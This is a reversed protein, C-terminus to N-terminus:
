DIKICDGLFCKSEEIYNELKKNVSSYDIPTSMIKELQSTTKVFRDSLGLIALLSEIRSNQRFPNSSKQKELVCFNKKFIISFCVAHFSDTLVFESNYIASIFDKPGMSINEKKSIKVAYETNPIILNFLDFKNEALKIAKRNFKTDGLFYTVFYKKNYSRNNQLKKWVDPSILFTPDCVVSVKKRTIRELEAKCTSERLSIGKFDKLYEYIYEEAYKPIYNIGFSAAYSFKNKSKVFNLFYIGNLNIPNWIQDSGCIFLDFNDNLKKFDNENKVPETLTISEFLFSNFLAEREKKEKLYTTEMLKDYRKYEDHFCCKIKKLIRYTLRHTKQKFSHLQDKRNPSYNILSVEANFNDKIYKQLAYAQLATGFNLNEFWTIIAIKM